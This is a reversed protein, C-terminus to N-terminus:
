QKDKIEIISEIKNSNYEIIDNYPEVFTLLAVDLTDMPIFVENISEKRWSPIVQESNDASQVDATM